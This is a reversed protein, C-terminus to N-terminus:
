WNSFIRNITDIRKVYFDYMREVAEDFSLNEDGNVNGTTAPNWIAFNKKASEGLREYEDLIFQDIAAFKPYLVQWREKALRKFSADEFLRRYWIAGMMFLKGQAHPSANYGFTGWDFDWIPGATLLGGRDKHLYVSGPNALEHNICIEYVLWYDVFSQADIYAAYGKEPDKFNPGFLVGEVENFYNKAWALQEATIDEEDPFKVASPFGQPTWWQNVNDFHFDMEYVYGGTIAEGSNDTSEMEIIDIRNSDIRIQETLIYNGIHRGNLVVEVYETRPTWALSTQRAVHYAVRNRMMTRDMTNALLVWRKHKPMGLLSTKSPFKLAYPKKDYGWTSNGRGRIEVDCEELDAYEGAGYLRIRAAKWIEKSTIDAGDATDVFMVPLGTFNKVRVRYEVKSGGVEVTYVVEQSFDVKSVGSTQVKGGVSVEGITEFSAILNMDEVLNPTAGSFLNLKKDFSMTVDSELQPNLRKEFRLNDFSIVADTTSLWFPNSSVVRGTKHRFDLTVEISYYDSMGTDVLYASFSSREPHSEVRLLEVEAPSTTTGKLRLMVDYDSLVFAEYDYVNFPLRVESFPEMVIVKDNDLVSVRHFKKEEKPEEVPTCAAM